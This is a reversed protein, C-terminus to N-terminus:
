STVIYFNDGENDKTVEKEETSVDDLDVASICRNHLILSHIRDITDILYSLQSVM